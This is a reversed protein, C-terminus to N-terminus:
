RSRRRSPPSRELVVTASAAVIAAVAITVTVVGGAFAAAGESTAAVIALVAATITGAAIVLAALLIQRRRDSAGRDTVKIDALPSVCTLTPQGETLLEITIPERRRILTPAILVQDRGPAADDATPLRSSTVTVVGAGSAALLAVIGAGVDFALPRDQDFDSARIDRRSRNEVLISVLHPDRLEEGKYLVQLDSPALSGPADRTVLSAAVPMSYVLVPKPPGLRWLVVAVVVGILVAVVGAGTWFTGSTYWPGSALVPPIWGGWPMM